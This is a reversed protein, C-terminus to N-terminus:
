RRRRFAFSITMIAMMIKEQIGTCILDDDDSDDEKGSCVFTLDDSYGDDDERSCLYMYSRMMTMM